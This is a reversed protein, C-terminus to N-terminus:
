RRLRDDFDLMRLRPFCNSTVIAAAVASPCFNLEKRCPFIALRPRNVVLGHRSIMDESVIIDTPVISRRLAM